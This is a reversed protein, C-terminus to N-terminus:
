VYAMNEYSHKWFVREGAMRASTYAVRHCCNPKQKKYNITKINKKKHNTENEFTPTM